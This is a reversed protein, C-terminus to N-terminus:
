KEALCDGNTNYGDFAYDCDPAGSCDDCTFREVDYGVVLRLHKVSEQRLVLLKRKAELSEAVWPTTWRNRHM